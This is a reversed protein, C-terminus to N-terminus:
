AKCVRMVFVGTASPLRLLVLNPRAAGTLQLTHENIDMGVGEMGFDCVLGHVVEVIEVVHGAGAVAGDVMQQGAFLVGSHVFAHNRQAAVAGAWTM